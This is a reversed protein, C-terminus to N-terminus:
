NFCQDLRAVGRCSSVALRCKGDDCALPGCEAADDCAAGASKFPRCRGRTQFDGDCWGFDCIDTGLEAGCPAGEPLRKACTTTATDCYLGHSFGCTKSPGM